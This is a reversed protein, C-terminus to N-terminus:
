ALIFISLYLFLSVTWVLLSVLFKRVRSIQPIECTVVEQGGLLLNEILATLGTWILFVLLLRFLSSLYNAEGSISFALLFLSLLLLGLIWRLPHIMGKSFEFNILSCPNVLTRCGRSPLSSFSSGTSVNEMDCLGKTYITM